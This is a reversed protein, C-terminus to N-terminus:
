RGSSTGPPPVGGGSSPGPPAGPATPPFGPRGGPLGGGGLGGGPRGPGGPYSSPGPVGAGPGSPAGPTGAGPGGGPFGPGPGGPIGKGPGRGPLGPKPYGPVGPGGGEASGSGGGGRRQKTMEHRLSVLETLVLDLKRELETLRRQLDPAGGGPMGPTGGKGPTGPFKAGPTGPPVPPNPPVPGGAPPKKAASQAAAQKTRQLQDMAQKLQQERQKLLLQQRKLDHQMRDLEDALQKVDAVAKDLQAKPDVLPGQGAGRAKPDQAWSPVLPLLVVGLGCLALFGAGTLTRPTSGRMIMTLRRRLVQLPGVGSAAPPLAPRAGSLFDLTEVLATAYARPSDPLAWVVWADCCEEEAERLERRAWWTLPFWWYLGLVLLELVRVWHDRRRLHALEHALLTARQEPGLRALLGEPLLLRPAGGVAWLMPSITGPVLWVRPGRALGLRRALAEAEQQLEAPAPTAHALLRGFRRIRAGALGFWCASGVLWGVGALLEWPLGVGAAALSAKPVAPATPWAAPRTPAPGPEPAPPLPAADEPMVEPGGPVQEPPVPLSPVAPEPDPDPALAQPLPEPLAAAASTAAPEGPGPWPVPITVLPPTVLKLLVLLWLGHAVAPRRCWRGASAAVAALALAMVCNSLGVQLLPSM